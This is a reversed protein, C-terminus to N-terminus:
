RKEQEAEKSTKRNYQERNTGQLTKKLQKKNDAM